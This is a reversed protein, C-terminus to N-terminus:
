QAVLGHSLILFLIRIEWNKLKLWENFNKIAIDLDLFQNVHTLKYPYSRLISFAFKDSNYKEVDKDTLVDGEVTIYM